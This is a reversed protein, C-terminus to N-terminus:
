AAASKRARAAPGQKGRAAAEAPVRVDARRHALKAAALAVILLLTVLNAVIVPISGSGLGYGAWAVTGALFTLLYAWSLDSSSGSRIARAVQPLWSTTTLAAAFLGLWTM